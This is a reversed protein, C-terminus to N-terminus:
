KEVIYEFKDKNKNSTVYFSVKCIYENLHSVKKAITYGSFKYEEDQFSNDIKTFLLLEKVKQEAKFTAIGRDYNIVRGYISFGISICFAIIVMAVISETLTSAKLFNYRKLLVMLFLTKLIEM